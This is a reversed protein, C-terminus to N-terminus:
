ISTSSPQECVCVCVSPSVSPRVCLTIAIFGQRPKIIVLPGHVKIIQKILTFPCKYEAQYCNFCLKLHM